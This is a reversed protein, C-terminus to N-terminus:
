KAAPLNVWLQIGYMPASDPLTRAGHVIGRGATTWEVDGAHFVDKFGSSDHSLIDGSLIYTLTEFGRHPHDNMDGDGSPRIPGAEDLLLFPDVHDLARIPFPRRVDFGSGEIKHEGNVIRFLSRTKSITSTTMFDILSYHVDNRTHVISTEVNFKPLNLSKSKGRRFPFSPNRNILM